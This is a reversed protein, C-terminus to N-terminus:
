ADDSEEKDELKDLAPQTGVKSRLAALADTKPDAQILPKVSYVYGTASTDDAEAMIMFGFEVSDTDDSFQGKVIDAAYQPLFCKGSAFIEGTEQNVAEFQGIFATWKSIRADEGAGTTTEGEQIGNSRGYLMYLDVPGDSNITAKQVDTRGGFVTATSIKRILQTM